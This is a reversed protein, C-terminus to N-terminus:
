KQASQIKPIFYVLVVGIFASLGLLGGFGAFYQVLLKYSLCYLITALVVQVRSLKTVCSMGVFTAGYLINPNFQFLEIKTLFFVLCGLLSSSRITGIYKVKSFEYTTISFIISLLIIM